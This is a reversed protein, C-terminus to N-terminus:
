EKHLEGEKERMQSILKNKMIIMEQQKRDIPEYNNMKQGPPRLSM